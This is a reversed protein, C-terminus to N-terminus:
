IHNGNAHFIKKWEEAESHTDKSTGHTEQLCFIMPDQNTKKNM